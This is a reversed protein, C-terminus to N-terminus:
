GQHMVADLLEARVPAHEFAVERDVLDRVGVVDHVVGEFPQGFAVRRGLAGGHEVVRGGTDVPNVVGQLPKRVTVRPSTFLPTSPGTIHAFLRGRPGVSMAFSGVSKHAPSAFVGTPWCANRPSLASFPASALGLAEYIAGM